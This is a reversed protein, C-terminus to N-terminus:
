RHSMEFSVKSWQRGNKLDLDSFSISNAEYRTVVKLSPISYKFLYTRIKTSSFICAIDVPIGHFSFSFFILM